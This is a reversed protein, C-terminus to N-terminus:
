NADDYVVGLPCKPASVTLSPEPFIYGGDVAANVVASGPRVRTIPQNEQCRLTTIGICIIDNSGEILYIYRSNTEVASYYTRLHDTM